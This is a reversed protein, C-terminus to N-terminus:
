LIGSETIAEQYAKDALTIAEHYAKYALMIAEDYAKKTVHNTTM